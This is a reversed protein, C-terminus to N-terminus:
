LYKILLYQNYLRTFESGQSLISTKVFEDDMEIRLENSKFNIADCCEIFVNNKLINMIFPLVVVRLM